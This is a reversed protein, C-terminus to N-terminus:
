HPAATKNATMARLAERMRDCVFEVVEPGAILPLKTLVSPPCDAKYTQASIDLGREVLMRAFTTATPTDKFRLCSLHRSGDVGLVVNPFQAALEKLRAHYSDGIGRTLDRNATAWRM